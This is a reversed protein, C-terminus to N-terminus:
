RQNDNQWWLLEANGILQSSFRSTVLLNGERLTLLASRAEMNQRWLTFAYFLHQHHYKANVGKHMDITEHILTHVHSNCLNFDLSPFERCGNTIGIYSMVIARGFRAGQPVMVIVQLLQASITVVQKMLIQDIWM